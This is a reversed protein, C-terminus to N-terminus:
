FPTISIGAHNLRSRVESAISAANPTDGHICITQAEVSLLSGDSVRVMGDHAISFAQQGAEAPDTILADAFTRSRLTGDPEYRRDAFAEGVTAFGADKWVKIMVSGALGVLILRRDVDSVADAITAALDANRVAANYLAGHPKVHRVTAGLDGAVTMLSEVQQKISAKLDSDSIEIRTRGFGARDPYAPHAGIAVRHALCFRVVARMSSVDGAHGGCAINASSVLRLLRDESGDVLAAPFEGVDSNLDIRTTLLSM